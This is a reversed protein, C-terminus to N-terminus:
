GSWREEESVVVSLYGGTDDRSSGAARRVGPIWLIGDTTELVPWRSREHRPVGAEALADFARKSGYGLRIRDDPRVRRVTLDGDPVPVALTWPSLPFPRPPEGVRADFRWRGWRVAFGPRLPTPPSEDERAAKSGIELWPGGVRAQLGGALDLSGGGSRVLALIRQVDRAALPYEAGARAVLERVAESAAAPGLAKVVGAPLRVSSVGETFPLRRLREEWVQVEARLLEATRALTRRAGPAIRAEIVPILEARIRNRLHSPDENAPDDVFPLGLLTALERITSRSVGLLPRAFPHRRAPIGALGRPGSGRLLHALVTEAQDDRTHGTLVWEGPRRREELAQYRAHRMRGEPSPGPAVDVAVTDLEIGLRDAVAEAAAALRDSAASGHHVHVARVPAGSEVATWACVASDAGGSLAVVLPGEPLEARERVLAALRNLRRAAAM